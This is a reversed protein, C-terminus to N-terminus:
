TAPSAASVPLGTVFQAGIFVGPVRAGDIEQSQVCEGDEDPELMGADFLARWAQRADVGQWDLSALPVFLVGAIVHCQPKDDCLTSVIASLARAVTRNLRMPARLAARRPSEAQRASDDPPRAGQPAALEQGPKVGGSKDLRAPPPPPVEPLPLQAADADEPAQTRAPRRRQPMPVPATEQPPSANETRVHAGDEPRRPESCREAQVVELAQPIPEPPPVVDALLLSPPAIRIADLPEPAGPPQIRVVCAGNNGASVIGGAVLIELSKSADDPAGPLREDALLRIVDSAGNPWVLYLGDAGYWLRSRPANPLWNHDSQVLERMAEVLHRALHVPVSEEAGAAGAASRQRHIVLAAAHRVLRDMVNHEHYTALGSISALMNPVIVDNGLALDALTKAPVIMPLAFLGPARREPGALWQAHFTTCRRERLWASLPAVYPQWLHGQVDRVRVQGFCRYLESCLGAIFTARRWRPELIVRNSITQRGAFIQSDTAQLAYFAVELGIRLMGGAQCHYSGATAPLANVYGAYNRIPELLDATFTANDCGYCLKIRAIVDHHNALLEEVGSARIGAATATAPAAKPSAPAAVDGTAGARLRKLLNALSM